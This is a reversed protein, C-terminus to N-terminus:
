RRLSLRHFIFGKRHASSWDPDSLMPHNGWDAGGDDAQHASNFDGGDMYPHSGWNPGEDSVHNGSGTGSGWDPEFDGVSPLGQQQMPAPSPPMPPPSQPMMPPGSPMAGPNEDGTSNLYEHMARVSMAPSPSSSPKSPRSPSSPSKTQPKTQQHPPKTAPSHSVPEPAKVSPLKPPPKLGPSPPANNRKPALPSRLSPPPAMGPTMPPPMGPMGPMGPMMGMPPKGNEGPLFEAPMELGPMPAQRQIQLSQPAMLPPVNPRPPIGRPTPKTPPQKPPAQGGPENSPEKSPTPDDEFSDETYPGGRRQRSAQDDHGAFLQRAFVDALLHGGM